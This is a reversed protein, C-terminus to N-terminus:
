SRYERLPREERGKAVHAQWKAEAKRAERDAARRGKAVARQWKAEAELERRAAKREARRHRWEPSLYEDLAAVSGMSFFMFFLFVTLGFV